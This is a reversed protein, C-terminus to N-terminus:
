SQCHAISAALKFPISSLARCRNANQHLKVFVTLGCKIVVGPSQLAFSKIGSPADSSRRLSLADHRHYWYAANCRDNVTHMLHNPSHSLGTTKFVMSGRLPNRLNSEQVMQRVLHYSERGYGSFNPSQCAPFSGRVPSSLYLNANRDSVLM